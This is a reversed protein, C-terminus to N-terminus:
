REQKVSLEDGTDPDLEDGDPSLQIRSRTVGMEPNGNEGADRSVMKYSVERSSRLRSPGSPGTIERDAYEDHPLDGLSTSSEYGEGM